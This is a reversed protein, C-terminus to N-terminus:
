LVKQAAIPVVTGPGFIASAGSDYLYQYDQAPIVGGIVVMIDERDLEKLSRVLQPLLTKYNAALLM